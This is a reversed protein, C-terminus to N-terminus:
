PKWWLVGGAVVPQPTRCGGGDGAGDHIVALDSPFDTRTRKMLPSMFRGTDSISSCRYIEWPSVRNHRGFNAYSVSAPSFGEDSSQLQTIQNISYAFPSSILNSGVIAAPFAEDATFKGRRISFAQHHHHHITTSVRLYPLLLPHFSSNVRM